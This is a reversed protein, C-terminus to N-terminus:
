DTSEKEDGRSKLNEQGPVVLFFLSKAWTWGVVVGLSTPFCGEPLPLIFIRPVRVVCLEPHNIMSHDIIPGYRFLLRREPLPVGLCSPLRFKSRDASSDRSPSYSVFLVVVLVVAIETWRFLSAEGSGSRGLIGTVSTWIGPITLVGRKGAMM